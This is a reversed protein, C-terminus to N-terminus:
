TSSRCYSQNAYCTYVHKFSCEFPAFACLEKKLVQMFLMCACIYAYNINTIHM